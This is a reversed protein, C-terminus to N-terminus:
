SRNSCLLYLTKLEVDIEDTNDIATYEFYPLIGFPSNIFIDDLKNFGETYYKGAIKNKRDAAPSIISNCYECLEEITGRIVEHKTIM